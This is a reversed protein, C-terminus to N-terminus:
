RPPSATSSPLARVEVGPRTPRAPEYAMVADQQNWNNAAWVNGAPDVAVETIMQISGSQFQHIVDGAKTGAPHGKTDDGAMLVVGRGYFNGFWVDDRGRCM